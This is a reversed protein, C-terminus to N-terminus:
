GFYLKDWMNLIGTIVIILFKVDNYILKTKMNDIEVNINDIKKDIENKPKNNENCKISDPSM